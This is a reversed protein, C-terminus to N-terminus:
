REASVVGGLQGLQAGVDLLENAKDVLQGRVVPLQELSLGLV